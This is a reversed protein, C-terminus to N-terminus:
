QKEDPELERHHPHNKIEERYTEDIKKIQTSYHDDIIKLKKKLESHQHLDVFSIVDHSGDLSLDTLYNNSNLTEREDKCHTLDQLDRVKKCKWRGSLGQLAHRAHNSLEGDAVSNVRTLRGRPEERQTKRMGFSPQQRYICERLKAMNMRGDEPITNNEVTKFKRFTFYPKALKEFKFDKWDDLTKCLLNDGRLTIEIRARHQDVPLPNKNHDTTKAYAHQYCHSDINGRMHQWGIALHRLTNKDSVPMFTFDGNNRGERYLRVNDQPFTSHKAFHAAMTALELMSAAGSRPIADLAVEVGVVEFPKSLEYKKAINAVTKVVQAWNEPDHIKINFITASKGKGFPAPDQPEVFPLRSQRKIADFATPQATHIQVEIWDVVARFRYCTYDM